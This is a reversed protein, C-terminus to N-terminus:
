SKGVGDGAPSHAGRQNPSLPVSAPSLPPPLTGIGVLPCVSHYEVYIHVKHRYTVAFMVEITIYIINGPAPYVALM